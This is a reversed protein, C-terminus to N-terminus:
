IYVMLDLVLYWSHFSCTACFLNCCAVLDVYSAATVSRVVEGTAYQIILNLNKNRRMEVEDEHEM